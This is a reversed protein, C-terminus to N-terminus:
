WEDGDEDDEDEYLDYDEAGTDYGLMYAEREEDSLDDIDVSSGYSSQYPMHNEKDFNGDEIGMEELEYIDYPHNSM